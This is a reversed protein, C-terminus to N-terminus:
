ASSSAPVAPVSAHATCALPSSARSWRSASCFPGPWLPGQLRDFASLDPGLRVLGAGILLFFFLMTELAALVIFSIHLYQGFLRIRM